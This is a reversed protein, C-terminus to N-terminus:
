SLRAYAVGGVRSAAKPNSTANEADLKAQWEKRGQRIESLNEYSLRRDGWEVTKGELVSKEAALYLDLM